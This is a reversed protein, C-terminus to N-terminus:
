AKEKWKRSLVEVIHLHCQCFDVSRFSAGQTSIIQTKMRSAFPLEEPHGVRNTRREEKYSATTTTNRQHFLERNDTDAWGLYEWRGTQGLLRRVNDDGPVCVTKCKECYLAAAKSM